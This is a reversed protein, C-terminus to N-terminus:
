TQFDPAIIAVNRVSKVLAEYDAYYLYSQVRQTGRIMTGSMVVVLNAGAGQVQGTIENTAGTGLAMLAVVAGVGIVIGLMTLASRLKNATLARLAVGFNETFNM